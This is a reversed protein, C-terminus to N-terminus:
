RWPKEPVLIKKGEVSPSDLPMSEHLFAYDYWKGRSGKAEFKSFSKMTASCGKESSVM